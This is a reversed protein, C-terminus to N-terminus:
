LKEQIEEKTNRKQCMSCIYHKKGEKKVMTGLIKNLFTEEIKQNCIDCKM